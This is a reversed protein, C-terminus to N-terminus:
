ITEEKEDEPQLPWLTDRLKEIQKIYNNCVERNKIHVEDLRLFDKCDSTPGMRIYM